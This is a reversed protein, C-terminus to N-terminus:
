VGYPLLSRCHLLAHVRVVQVAPQFLDDALYLGNVPHDVLVDGALIHQGLDVRRFGGKVAAALHHQLSVDLVTDPVADLM